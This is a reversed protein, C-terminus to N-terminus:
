FDAHLRSPPYLLNFAIGRVQRTGCQGVQGGVQQLPHHLWGGRVGPGEYGAEAASLDASSGGRRDLSVKSHSWSLVARSYM